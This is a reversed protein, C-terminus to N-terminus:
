SSRALAVKLNSYLRFCQHLDLYRGWGEEGSFVFDLELAQKEVDVLSAIYTSPDFPMALESPLSRYYEKIGKLRSYFESLADDIGSGAMALKDRQFLGDNDRYLAELETSVTAIN